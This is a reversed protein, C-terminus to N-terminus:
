NPQTSFWEKWVRAWVFPLQMGNARAYAKVEAHVAAPVEVTM